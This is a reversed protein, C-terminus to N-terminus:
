TALVDWKRDNIDGEILSDYSDMVLFTRGEGGLVPANQTSVQRTVLVRLPRTHVIDLVIFSRVLHHVDFHRLCVVDVKRM